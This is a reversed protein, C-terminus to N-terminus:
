WKLFRNVNKWSLIMQAFRQHLGFHRSVNCVCVCKLMSMKFRYVKLSSILNLSMSINRNFFQCMCLWIYLCVCPLSACVHKALRIFRYLNKIHCFDPPVIFTEVHSHRYIPPLLAKKLALSLHTILIFHFFVCVLPYWCSKLLLIHENFHIKHQYTYTVLSRSNVIFANGLKRCLFLFGM